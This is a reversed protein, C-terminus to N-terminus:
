DKIAAKRSAKGKALRDGIKKREEDSLEMKAKKPNYPHYPYLPCPPNRCDRAEGDGYGGMCQYCHAKIADQRTNTIGKFHDLLEEKGIAKTNTAWQERQQAYHQSLGETTWTM